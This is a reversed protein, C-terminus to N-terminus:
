KKKPPIRDIAPGTSALKGDNLFYTLERAAIVTPTGRLTRTLKPAGGNLIVKQDKTYYELHESLGNYSNERRAGSVEVAGDAVAKELQSEAKSEALWAHLEKSKLHLDPRELKVGGSYYALRDQDTYVLHPAYVKTLVASTSKKKEDEKPQEWAETVVNGDAILSHKDRDIEVVDASIRNAGQWLRVNGEYRTHHNGARNSSEM